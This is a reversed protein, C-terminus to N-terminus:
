RARGRCGRRSSSAMARRRHGHVDGPEGLLDLREGVGEQPHDLHDDRRQQERREHDADGAGAVQLRHAPDPQLRDDVELDRRRDRQKEAEREHVDELRAGAQRMGSPASVVAAAAITCFWCCAQSMKRCRNGVETTSAIARPSMRCTTTKEINKPM